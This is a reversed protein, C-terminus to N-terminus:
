EGVNDPQKFEFRARKRHFWSSAIGTGVSRGKAQILAVGYRPLQTVPDLTEQAQNSQPCVDPRHIFVVRDADQEIDGSDRLDSLRPERNGETVSQRNLQALCVVVVNQEMALRKLQKTVAGVSQAPTQGKSPTCDAVLGLYDIVLLDLPRTAHMAQCRAVIGALSRDERVGLPARRLKTISQLYKEQLDRPAGPLDGFAVGALGVAMGDVVDGASVELSEFLVHRDQLAAAVAVGRALSSKGVSPRAGIIVLEGRRMPKFADDLASSGWSVFDATHVVGAIADRARQDAAACVQDWSQGKSSEIQTTLLAALIAPIEDPSTAAATTLQRSLTAIRRRGSLARLESCLPTLCPSAAGTTGTIELLLAIEVASPKLREWVHDLDFPLGSAHLILVTELVRGLIPDSFSTPVIGHEIVTLLAPTGQDLLAAVISRETATAALDAHM